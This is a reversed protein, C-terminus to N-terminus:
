HISITTKIWGIKEVTRIAVHSATTALPVDRNALFSGDVRIAKKKGLDLTPIAVVIKFGVKVQWSPV